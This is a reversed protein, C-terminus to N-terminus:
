FISKSLLDYLLHLTVFSQRFLAHMKSNESTFSNWTLNTVILVLRWLCVISRCCTLLCDLIWHKPCWYVTKERVKQFAWFMTQTISLLIICFPDSHFCFSSLTLSLTLNDLTRTVSPLIVTFTHRFDVPSIIKTRTPALNSNTLTRTILLWSYFEFTLRLFRM